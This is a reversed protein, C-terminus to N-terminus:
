KDAEEIGRILDTVDDPSLEAISNGITFYYKLHSQNDYGYEVLLGSSDNRYLAVFYGRGRKTKVLATESKRVVSIAIYLLTGVILMSLVAVIFLVIAMIDIM